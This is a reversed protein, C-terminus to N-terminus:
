ILIDTFMKSKLLVTVIEAMTSEAQRIVVYHVENTNTCNMLCM